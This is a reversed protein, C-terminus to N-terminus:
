NGLAVNVGIEVTLNHTNTKNGGFEFFEFRANTNCYNSALSLALNNGILVHLFAGSEMNWGYTYEDFFIRNTTNEEIRDVNFSFSGGLGFLYKCGILFHDNLPHSLYLGPAISYNKARYNSELRMTPNSSEFINYLATMKGGLGLHKFPFYAGELAYGYGSKHSFKLHEEYREVEIDKGLPAFVANLGFFSPTGKKYSTSKEGRFLQDNILYGIEGAAIGFGAGALVDSAWHKNNLIRSIGVFSACAYGGVSYWPSVKGYEKHLITASTFATMTHGSPFSNREYESYPRTRGTTNKLGETFAVSMMSSCLMASLMEGWGNSRGKIGACRLGVVSLGPAVQLVDDYSYHYNPAVDDRFKKIENDFHGILTSGLFLSAPAIAKQALTWDCPTVVTLSDSRTAGFLSFSSALLLSGILCIKKVGGRRNPQFM